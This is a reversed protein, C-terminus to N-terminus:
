KKIETKQGELSGVTIKLSEIIKHIHLGSPAFVSVRISVYFQGAQNYLVKFKLESGNIHM